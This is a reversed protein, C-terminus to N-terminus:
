FGLLKGIQFVAFSAIWALVSVISTVVILLKRM